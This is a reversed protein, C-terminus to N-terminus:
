SLTLLGVARRYCHDFLLQWERLQVQKVREEYADGHGRANECADVFAYPDWSTEARGYGLTAADAALQPFVPHTGARRWWYKSNGADPERRHM